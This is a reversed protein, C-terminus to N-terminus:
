DYIKRWVFTVYFSVTQNCKNVTCLSWLGFYKTPCISFGAPIFYTSRRKQFLILDHSLTRLDHKCKWFWQNVYLSFILTSLTVCATDLRAKANPSSSGFGPAITLLMKNSWQSLIISSTIRKYIYIIHCWKLFFILVM